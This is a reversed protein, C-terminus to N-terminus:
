WKIASKQSFKLYQNAQVFHKCGFFGSYASFPSPHAATLVLHKNQDILSLKQKAYNGWLMFVLNNQSKSLQSIICDTFEEWGKGSHSGAKGAEVSLVSNLLLVGQEAWNTLDGNFKLEAQSKQGLEAELEKFINQLSPPNKVDAPVSFSLGMAQNPGHYPDQGLIVVKVEDPSTLNLANFVNKPHPYIKKGSLYEGRVFDATEQFQDSNLYDALLDKWQKNLKIEVM